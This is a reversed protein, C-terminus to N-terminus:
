QKNKIMSSLVSIGGIMQVFSNGAKEAKQFLDPKTQKAKSSVPHVEAQALGPAIGAGGTLRPTSREGAAEV